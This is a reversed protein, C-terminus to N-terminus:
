SDQIRLPKLQGSDIFTQILSEFQDQKKVLEQILNDKEQLRANIISESTENKARLEEVRIKL